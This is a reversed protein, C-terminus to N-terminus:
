NCLRKNSKMCYCKNATHGRVVVLESSKLQINQLCSSIPDALVNSTFDVAQFSIQSKNGGICGSYTVTFYNLLLFTLVVQSILWPWRHCCLRNINVVPFAGNNVGECIVSLMDICENVLSGGCNWVGAYLSHEMTGCISYRGLTTDGSLPSTLQLVVFSDDVCASPSLFYIVLVWSHWGPGNVVSLPHPYM